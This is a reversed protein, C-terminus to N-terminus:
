FVLDFIELLLYKLRLERERIKFFYVDNIIIHM